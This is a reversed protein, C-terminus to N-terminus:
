LSNLNPVKKSVCHLNGKLQLCLPLGNAFIYKTISMHCQDRSRSVRGQGLYESVYRQTSFTNELDLSEFTITSVLYVSLCICVRIADARQTQQQHHYQKSERICRKTKTNRIVITQTYCAYTLTCIRHKNGTYKCLQLAPLLATRKYRPLLLAVTGLRSTHRSRAATERVMKIYLRYCGTNHTRLQTTFLTKHGRHHCALSIASVPTQFSKNVLLSRNNNHVAHRQVLLFRLPTRPLIIQMGTM